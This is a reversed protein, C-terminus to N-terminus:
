MREQALDSLHYLMIWTNDMKTGDCKWDMQGIKACSLHRRCGATPIDVPMKFFKVASLFYAKQDLHREWDNDVKVKQCRRKKEISAVDPSSCFMRENTAEWRGWGQEIAM